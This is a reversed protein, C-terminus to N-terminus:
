KTSPSLQLGDVLSGNFTVKVINITVKQNIWEDTDEGYADVLISLNTQNLPMPSDIDSMRILLREQDNILEPFVANIIHKTGKLQSSNKATLYKTTLFKNVKM